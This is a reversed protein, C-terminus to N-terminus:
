KRDEVVELCCRPGFPDRSKRQGAEAPGKNQTSHLEGLEPKTLFGVCGACVLRQSPPRLSSQCGQFDTRSQRRFDEAIRGRQQQRGARDPSARVELAGDHGWFRIFGEAPDYSRSANPFNLTMKCTYSREAPRASM